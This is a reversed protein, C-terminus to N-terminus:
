GRHTARGFYGNDEGHGHHGGNSSENAFTDDYAFTDMDFESSDSDDDSGDFGHHLGNTTGNGANVHFVDVFPTQPSDIAAAADTSKALIAAVRAELRHSPVSMSPLGPGMTPTPLPPAESGVVEEADGLFFTSLEHLNQVLDGLDDEFPDVLRDVEPEFEIRSPRMPMKCTDFVAMVNARCLDRQRDPRAICWGSDDPMGFVETVVEMENAMFSNIHMSMRLVQRAPIGEGSISMPEDLVELAQPALDTQLLRLLPMLLESGLRDVPDRTERLGFLVKLFQMSKVRLWREKNLVLSMFLSVVETWQTAAYLDRLSSAAQRMFDDRTRFRSKVVSTMIRAISPHNEKEALRAVNEAIKMVIPDQVGDWSQLCLPLVMAYLDRLRNGSMDILTPDDIDSLRALISLTRKYTNVSRLGVLLLRQLDCAEDRFGAPKNAMLVQVTYQEKLDLQAMLSDLMDLLQQFEAEVPTSLCALACWYLQPLLTRDVNSSKVVSSLTILLEVTFPHLNVEQAAITNSLRGLLQALDSQTVKPMLSRFVQLSRFAIPRISCTTGWFLALSGWDNALDPHLPQLWQVVTNCLSRMKDSIQSVTDDETWFVDGRDKELDVLCERMTVYSSLGSQNSQEAYGPLWSRLVQFLLQRAQERVFPNRHGVHAFVGQLLVPLQKKFEWARSIAVDGLFLLSFQGAGLSHKPQEAFLADLDAWLDTEEHDPFMLKHDITPLMRVPEIVECLDEFTQRGCSTRSLCAVIRRACSVFGSSGVKSSQELLFRITAHGNSHNDEVLSSWLAHIQEPYNESYRITLSMLHFLVIRGERSLSSNDPVLLQVHSFWPALSGLVHSFAYAALVDHVMVLKSTSQVIVDLAEERHTEALHYSIQFQADLYVNAARSGVGAEFASLGSASISGGSKMHISELIAM